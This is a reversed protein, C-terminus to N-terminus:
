ALQIQDGRCRQLRTPPLSPLLSPPILKCSAHHWRTTILEWVCVSLCLCMCVKGREQDKLYAASRNSYLVHNDPDIDLGQTYLAIAEKYRPPPLSSPLSPPLPLPHPLSCARSGGKGLCSLSRCADSRLRLLSPPHTPTCIGRRQTDV